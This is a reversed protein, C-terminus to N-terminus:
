RPVVPGVSPSPSPADGLVERQDIRAAHETHLFPGLPEASTNAVRAPVGRGARRLLVGEGDQEQPRAVRRLGGQCGGGDLESERARRVRRLVGPDEAHRGPEVGAVGREDQRALHPVARRAGAVWAQERHEVVVGAHERSRRRRLVIEHGRARRSRSSSM